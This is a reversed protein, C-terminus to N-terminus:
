RVRVAAWSAKTRRAIACACARENRLVNPRRFRSHGGARRVRGSDPLSASSTIGAIHGNISKAALARIIKAGQSRITITDCHIVMVDDSLLEEEAINRQIDQAVWEYEDEVTEFRKVVVAEEPKMEVQFYKPTAEQSRGLEVRQGLQLSGGRTEYGIDKWLEPDDFMQVLGIESGPPAKRYIGFGLSHAITLAWPTNRYCIPLVIDQRAERERNELRVRPTGDPFRGFLDEVPMMTYSSITQLEDYAFIIRKPSKTVLYILEFFEQPMDQAEDILM